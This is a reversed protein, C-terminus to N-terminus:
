NPYCVTCCSCEIEPPNGACDSSLRDLNFECVAPDIEGTLMNNEVRFDKLNSLQGINSPVTGTFDNNELRVKTLATLDFISSPLAGTIFNSDLELIELGTIDGIADPIPGTIFNGYFSIETTDTLIAIESPLPGYLALEFLQVKKVVRVLAQTRREQNDAENSNKRRLSGTTSARNEAEVLKRGPALQTKCGIGLWQCVTREPDMWGTNLRWNDGDTTLYVTALAYRQNIETETYGSLGPNAFLWEAAQYQPSSTDELAAGGDPSVNALHALLIDFAAMTPAVTPTAPAIPEATPAGPERSKNAQSLGVGVAVALIIAMIAFLAATKCKKNRELKAEESLPAAKISQVTEPAGRVPDSSMKVTDAPAAAAGESAEPAEAAKAAAAAAAEEEKNAAVVAGLGLAAAAGAAGAMMSGFVSVRSGDDERTVSSGAAATAAGAAAAKAEARAADDTAKPDVGAEKNKAAVAAGLGQSAATSKGGEEGFVSVKEKDGSTALVAGAAAATAAAAAAAKKNDGSSGDEGKKSGRFSAFLGGSSKKSDSAGDAKRRAAVAAGLGMTAATSKTGEGGFVSLNKDDEEGDPSNPITGALLSTSSMSVPMDEGPTTPIWADEDSSPSGPMAGALLSTSSMSVPMDEDSSPSGPMAGALLSTSSMSVPMDDASIDDAAPPLIPSGLAGLAAVASDDTDSSMTPRIDRDSSAESERGPSSPAGFIPM